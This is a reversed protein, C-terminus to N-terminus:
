HRVRIGMMLSLLSTGCTEISITIPRLNYNNILIADKKISTSVAYQTANIRAIDARIDTTSEEFPSPSNLYFDEFNYFDVAGSVVSLVNQKLTENFAFSKQCAIADAPEVYQSGAIKVCPDTSLTTSTATVLLGLHSPITALLLGARIFPTFLM